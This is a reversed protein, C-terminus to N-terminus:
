EPIVEELRYYGMTPAAGLRTVIEDTTTGSGTLNGELETSWDTLESSYHLAYTKGPVGEYDIEVATGNYRIATIKAEGTAPEIREGNIVFAMDDFAVWDGTPFETIAISSIGLGVPAQFGVFQYTTAEFSTTSTFTDTSGDTFTATVTTLDAGNGWQIFITSFHTVLDGATKPTMTWTNSGAVFGFKEGSTFALANTASGDNRGYRNSGAITVDPITYDPETSAMNGGALTECDFVGARVRDGAADILSQMDEPSIFNGTTETAILERDLPNIDTVLDASATLIAFHAM